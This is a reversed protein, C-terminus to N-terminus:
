AGTADSKDERMMLFVIMAARLPNVDTFIYEDCEATPWSGYQFDINITNEAIVPWADAPNNCYDTVTGTHEKSFSDYKNICIRPDDSDPAFDVHSWDHELDEAVAKNIEFDSMQEYNM